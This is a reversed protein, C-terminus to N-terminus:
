ATPRELARGVFARAASRDVDGHGGRAQVASEVLAPDDVNAIAWAVASPKSTLTGDERYRLALCANLVADDAPASERLYWRLSEALLALVLTRPLPAFARTDPAGALPVGHAALIARDLAFWHQESRDPLFDIRTAMERGTNLNLEFAPEPTPVAVAAASYLVLELGRAPCPFAEHRVREVADRRAAELM